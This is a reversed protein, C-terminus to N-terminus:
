LVFCGCSDSNLKKKNKDKKTSYQKKKTITQNLLVAEKISKINDFQRKKIPKEFHEDNNEIIKASKIKNPKQNNCTDQLNDPLLHIEAINNINESIATNPSNIKKEANKLEELGHIEKYINKVENM